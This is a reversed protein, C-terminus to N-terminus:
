GLERKWTESKPSDLLFKGSAELEHETMMQALKLADVDTDWALRQLAFSPDALLYDVETPRELRQNTQLYKEYDLGATHFSAKLFDLVSADKGTGLVYDGPEDEQLMKWMGVVFDPAYGWDRRASLNGLEIVTQNGRSIAAAAIAIKRTVFTEGRRPSEHNFLIGNSAHIGYADRYNKTIEHAFLKSAAYPSRPKMITSESQPPHSSGFMESSSAQYFRCDISSQRIAELLRLAGLATSDATYLPEDFSVRVHSQAALNYIEHPRIEWVLNTIRSADTVDGYHLFLNRNENVQSEYLHDLRRTNISSTRRIIGHVEYGKRLLLEALYSGDQGSIGSILAKSKGM